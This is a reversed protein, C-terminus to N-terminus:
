QTTKKLNKKLSARYIYTKPHTIYKSFILVGFNLTMKIEFM